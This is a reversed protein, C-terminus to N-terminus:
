IKYNVQLSFRGMDLSGLIYSYYLSLKTDKTLNYSINPSIDFLNVDKFGNDKLNGTKLPNSSVLNLRKAGKKQILLNNAGGIYSLSLGWSLPTEPIAGKLELYAVSLSTGKKSGSGFVSFGEFSANYSNWYSNGAMDFGGHALYVGYGEGFSQLYGLKVGFVKGHDYGININGVGRFAAQQWQKNPTKNLAFENNINGVGPNASAAGGLLRANDSVGTAAVQVGVYFNGFNFKGKATLMYPVFSSIYGYQLSADIGQAKLDKGSQIIALIMDNGLGFTKSVVGRALINRYVADTAWTDYFSLSYNLHPTNVSVRAGLGIDLGKSTMVSDLNMRGVDIKFGKVYGENEANIFEKTMFFQSINFTDTASTDKVGRSGYADTNTNGGNLVSSGNSFMLGGTFSVGNIEQTTLDAKMRYQFRQGEEDQGHGAFYKGFLLGNLKAGEFIKSLDAAGLSMSAVLSVIGVKLFSNKM